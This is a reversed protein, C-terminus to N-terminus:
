ILAPSFQFQISPSTNFVKNKRQMAWLLSLSCFVELVNSSQRMQKLRLICKSNAKVHKCKRLTLLLVMGVDM